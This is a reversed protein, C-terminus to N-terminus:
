AATFVLSDTQPGATKIRQSRRQQRQKCEMAYGPENAKRWEIWAEYAQQSNASPVKPKPVPRPRQPAATVPQLYRFTSSPPFETQMSDLGAKYSPLYMAPVLHFGGGITPLFAHTLQPRRLSEADDVTQRVSAFHTAIQSVGHYVQPKMRISTGKITGAPESLDDNYNTSPHKEDATLSSSGRVDTHSQGSLKTISNWKIHSLRTNFSLFERARPNLSGIAKPANVHANLAAMSAEASQVNGPGYDVINDSLTACRRGSGNIPKRIDVEQESKPWAMNTPSLSGDKSHAQPAHHTHHGSTSSHLKQLLKKFAADRSQRSSLKAARCSIIPTESSHENSSRGPLSEGAVTSKYSQSRSRNTGAEDINVEDKAGYTAQRQATHTMADMAVIETRIDGVTACVEPLPRDLYRATQICQMSGLNNRHSNYSDNLSRTGDFNIEFLHLRSDFSLQFPLEVDKLVQCVSKPSPQLPADFTKTFSPLHPPQLSKPPKFVDLNVSRCKKHGNATFPLDTDTSDASIRTNECDTTDVVSAHFSLKREDQSLRKQRWNPNNMAKTFPISYVADESPPTRKLKFQKFNTRKLIPRNASPSPRKPSGKAQIIAM